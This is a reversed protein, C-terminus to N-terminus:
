RWSLGIAHRRCRGFSRLLTWTRHLTVLSFIWPRFFFLFPHSSHVFCLVEEAVPSILVIISSWVYWWCTGGDRWRWMIWLTNCLTPCAWIKWSRNSPGDDYGL